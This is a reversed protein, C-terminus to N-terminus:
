GSLNAFIFLFNHDLALPPKKFFSAATAEPVYICCSIDIFRGDYKKRENVWIIRFPLTSM